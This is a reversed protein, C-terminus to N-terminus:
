FIIASQKYKKNRYNTQLFIKLNRAECLNAECLSAEFM